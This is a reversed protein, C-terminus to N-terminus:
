LLAGLLHHIETEKDDAALAGREVLVGRIDALQTALWEVKDAPTAGPAIAYHEDIAETIDTLADHASALEGVAGAVTDSEARKGIADSVEDELAELREGNAALELIADGWKANEGGHLRLHEGYEEITFLRMKGHERVRLRAPRITVGAVKFSIKGM